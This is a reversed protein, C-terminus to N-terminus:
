RASRVRQLLRRAVDSGPNRQLLAQFEREAEALMGANAYAIGLLLHSSGSTRRAADIDAAASTDIVKFRADPAPRTPSITEKGDKVATVQWKYVGGRKLPKSVTWATNRLSPSTDIKNFNDDYVTVVYSEAGPMSRWRFQPRDPEIVRGVPATLAFTTGSQGDGMMVGSSSRLDRVGPPIELTPGTLAAKVRAEFRPAVPGTLNGNQDLAIVAGGDILSTTVKPQTSDSNAPVELQPEIANSSVTVSNSVPDVAEVLEPRRTRMLLWVSSLVVALLLLAFVPAAFRLSTGTALGKWIWSIPSLRRQPVADPEALELTTRLHLLEAIQASCEPCVSRHVEVIERDVDGAHGDVYATLQEYSLHENPERGFLVENEASTVTISRTMTKIASRCLDCGALHEDAELLRAPTLTRDVFDRIDDPSLHQSM